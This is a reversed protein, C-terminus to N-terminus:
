RLDEKDILEQSSEKKKMMEAKAWADIASIDSGFRKSDSVDDIKTLTPIKVWEGILLAEGNNLTTLQSVIKDTVEESSSSIVDHDRKQIIKLLAFSGMQSLTDEDVKYPRQSVICLGLGFKRAERAIRAAWYKSDTDINARIFTHAEEIVFLVPTEFIVEKKDNKSASKRDEYITRLYYALAIDAQKESFEHANLINIELQKLLAKPEEIDPDIVSSFLRQARQLRKIVGQSADKLKEKKADGSEIFKQISSEFTQWFNKETRAVDFYKSVIVRQNIANEPIEIMNSFEEVELKRPNVKAEIHNVYIKKDHDDKLELGGYDNHYDFIIMTGGIKGIERALVTVLNSKGMGTKSLIALHRSLIKDLNIKVDVNQTRLLKGVRKWRQEEPSFIDKLDNTEVQFIRNGPLPPIYPLVTKSNKLEDIKGVIRIETEFGKDRIDKQAQEVTEQATLWDKVDVQNMAASKATSREILGLCDGQEHEIKVYAGLPQAKETLAVIQIPNSEGIVLGILKM